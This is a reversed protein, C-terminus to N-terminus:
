SERTYDALEYDGTMKLANMPCADVCLGCFLCMRSQVRPVMKDRVKSDTDHFQSLENAIRMWAPTMM